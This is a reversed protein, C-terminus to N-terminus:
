HRCQAPQSGGGMGRRRCSPPRSRAPSRAAAWETGRWPLWGGAGLVYDHISIPLVFAPNSFLLDIQLSHSQADRDGVEGEGEGTAPSCKRRCLTNVVGGPRTFNIYIYLIYIEAGVWRAEGVRSRGRSHRRHPQPTAPFQLTSTHTRKVRTNFTHELLWSKM